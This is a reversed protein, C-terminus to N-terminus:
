RVHVLPVTTFRPYIPFSPSRQGDNLTPEAFWWDAHFRCLAEALSVPLVVFCAGMPRLSVGVVVDAILPSEKSNFLSRGKRLYKTAYRRHRPTLTRVGGAIMECIRNECPM